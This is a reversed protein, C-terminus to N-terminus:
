SDLGGLLAALGVIVGTILALVGLLVGFFGGGKEGRAELSNAGRIGLVLAAAGPILGFLLLPILVPWVGVSILLGLGALGVLTSLLSLRSVRRKAPVDQDPKGSRLQSHAPAVRTRNGPATTPVPAAERSKGAAPVAPRHTEEGTPGAAKGASVRCTAAGAATSETPVAPRGEESTSAM